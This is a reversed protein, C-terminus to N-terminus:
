WQVMSIVFACPKRTLDKYQISLPLNSFTATKSACDAACRSAKRILCVMSKQVDRINKVANIHESEINLKSFLTASPPKKNKHLLNTKEKDAKRSNPDWILHSRFQYM